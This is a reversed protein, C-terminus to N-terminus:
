LIGHLYHEEEGADKLIGDDGNLNSPLGRSKLIPEVAKEVAKEVLEEVQEASLKGEQKQPALAKEIATEVMAEVAEKTIEAPTNDDTVTDGAPTDMAKKIAESVIQEVEQKTVETGEKNKNKEDDEDDVEDFEKLFAGLSEYIGQLKEKNKSSMKKGSKEIPRDTQIAKIISESALIDTIIANFDELCEKIKGEDKEFQYRGTEYDYVYLLSELTSMAEWFTARKKRETYTELMAGKEVVNLGLATALQKLLGKKESVGQQKSVSELEVDEGSFTGTGGISFGTIEGKEIAGWVNEDTVEVTMMWTGAKVREDGIKFDAKAIWSEVVTAGDFKEFNHQIDIGNGNKVFYYAAKTIEEETMFNGQSDETMPEYVVGTVYHKDSDTKIIRGYLSFMASGDDAKKLLFTRKNAAADVLSVYQIKADTIEYAKELNKRM